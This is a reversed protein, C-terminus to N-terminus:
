EINIERGGYIKCDPCPITISIRFFDGAVINYLYKGRIIRQNTLLLQDSYSSQFV